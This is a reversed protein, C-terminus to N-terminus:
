KKMVKKNKIYGGANKYSDALYLWLGDQGYNGCELVYDKGDIEIEGWFHQWQNSTSYGRFGQILTPEYGLYSMMEVLAGNYQACQGYRGNFIGDAYGPRIHTYSTDYTVMRNIWLLTYLVKQEDTWSSDFHKKAFAKVAKIDEKLMEGEYVVSKKPQTNENIFNTHSATREAKSLTALGQAFYDSMTKMNVYLEEETAAATKVKGNADTSYSRVRFLVEQFYLNGVGALKNINVKCSVTDGSTVKKAAKWKNTDPNFYYVIYGEAGEAKAWKLKATNSVGWIKKISSVSTPATVTHVAKSAKSYVRSGYEQYAKIKYSYRTGPTLNTDKFSTISGSTVEALKKYKTGTTSDKRYIRYGSAGSYATWSIKVAKAGAKYATNVVPKSDSFDGLRFSIPRAAFVTQDASVPLAVAATAMIAGASILSVTKKIRDNM